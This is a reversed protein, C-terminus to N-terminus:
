EMVENAKRLRTISKRVSYFANVFRRAAESARVCFAAIRKYGYKRIFNNKWKMLKISRKKTALRQKKWSSKM